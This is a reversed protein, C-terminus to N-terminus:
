AWRTPGATCRPRPAAAPAFTTRRRDTGVGRRHRSRAPRRVTRERVPETRRTRHGPRAAARPPGPAPRPCAPGGARLEAILLSGDHSFALANMRYPVFERALERGSGPDLLRLGAYDEVAITRGEPSCAVRRLGEFLGGLTGTMTGGHPEWLQASTATAVCLTDQRGPIWCVEAVPDVGRLRTVTGDARGLLLVDGSALGAALHRADPSLALATIEGETHLAAPLEVADGTDADLLVSRGARLLFLRDGDTSWVAADTGSHRVAAPAPGPWPLRWVVRGEDDYRVVDEAHVVVLGTGDPSLCLCRADPAPM